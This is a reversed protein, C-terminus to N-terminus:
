YFIIFCSLDMNYGSILLWSKWLRIFSIPSWALRSRERVSLGNATHARLMSQAMKLYVRTATTEQINFNKMCQRVNKDLIRLAANVNQKDKVFVDSKWMGSELKYLEYTKMLHELLVFRNGLVLIQKVNLLQNRWKKILHRWDPFMISPVDIPADDANTHIKSVVSVFDFSEYNITIIDNRDDPTKTFRETYYKRCKSDGDAGVGILLMNNQASWKTAHSYWKEVTSHDQGKLVPGIALVFSPVHEQLPALVFANALKAKEKENNEVINIIDQACSIMVDNEVALGYLQNGKAKLSPTIM